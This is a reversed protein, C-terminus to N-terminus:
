KLAGGPQVGVPPRIAPASQYGVGADIAIVAQGLHSAVGDAEARGAGETEQHLGVRGKGQPNGLLDAGLPNRDVLDAGVVTQAKAHTRQGLQM